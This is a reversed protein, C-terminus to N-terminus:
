PTTCNQPPLQGGQGGEEAAGPLQGIMNRSDSGSYDLYYNSVPVSPDVHNLFGSPGPSYRGSRLSPAVLPGLPKKIVYIVTDFHIAVRM